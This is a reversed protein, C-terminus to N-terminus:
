VQIAHDDVTHLVNRDIADLTPKQKTAPGPAPAATKEATVPQLKFESPPAPPEQGVARKEVQIPKSSPPINSVGAQQQQPVIVNGAGPTFGPTGQGQQSGLGGYVGQQRSDPVTGYLYQQQLMEPPPPPLNELDVFDQDGVNMNNM